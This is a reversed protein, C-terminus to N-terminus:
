KYKIFSLGVFAGDFLAAALVHVESNFMRAYLEFLKSALNEPSYIEYVWSQQSLKETSCTMRIPMREPLFHVLGHKLGQENNLSLIKFRRRGVATFAVSPVVGAESLLIKRARIKISTGTTCTNILSRGRNVVGLEIFASADGEECLKEFHRYVLPDSIRLPLVEGPFLVVDPLHLLLLNCSDQIELSINDDDNDDDETNGNPIGLYRHDFRRRNQM